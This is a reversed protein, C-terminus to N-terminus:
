IIADIKLKKINKQVIKGNKICQWLSAFKANVKTLRMSLFNKKSMPSTNKKKDFGFRGSYFNM